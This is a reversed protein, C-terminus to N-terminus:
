NQPIDHERFLKEKFRNFSETDHAYVGPAYVWVGRKGSKFVSRYSVTDGTTEFEFDIIEPSEKRGGEERAPWKKRRGHDEPNFTEIM